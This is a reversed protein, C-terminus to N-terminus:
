RQCSRRKNAATSLHVLQRCLKRASSTPLPADREEDTLGADPLGAQRVLGKGQRTFPAEEDERTRGIRQFTGQGVSGDESGKSWEQAVEVGSALCPQHATQRIQTPQEGVETQRRRRWEAVGGQLLRAEKLGDRTQKFSESPLGRHEEEQIVEMPGVRGRKFQQMIEGPAYGVLRHKHQPRVPSFLDVRSTAQALKQRRM